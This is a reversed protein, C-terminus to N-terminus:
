LTYEVIDPKAKKEVRPTIPIKSEVQNQIKPPMRGAEDGEPRVPELSLSASATQQSRAVAKGPKLASPKASAGSEPPPAARRSPAPAKAPAPISPEPPLNANQVPAAQPSPATTKASTSSPIKTPSDPKPAGSVRQSPLPFKLTLPLQSKSFFGLGALLAYTLAATAVVAVLVVALYISTRKGPLPPHPKLIELAINATRTWRSTRERDLKKLADLILSM